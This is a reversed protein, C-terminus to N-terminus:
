GHGGVETLGYERSFIILSTNLFEQELHIGMRSKSEEHTGWDVESYDVTVFKESFKINYSSRTSYNVSMDYPSAATITAIGALDRSVVRPADMVFMEKAQAIIDPILFLLIIMVIIIAVTSIADTTTTGKM